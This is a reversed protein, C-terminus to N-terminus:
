QLGIDKVTGKWAPGPGREPAAKRDQFVVFALVPPDFAKGAGMVEPPNYPRNSLNTVSLVELLIDSPGSVDVALFPGLPMQATGFAQELGWTTDAADRSGDLLAM